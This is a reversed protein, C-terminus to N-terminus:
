LGEVRDRMSLVPIDVRAKMNLLGVKISTGKNQQTCPVSHTTVTIERTIKRSVLAIFELRTISLTSLM